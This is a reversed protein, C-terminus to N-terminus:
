HVTKKTNDLVGRLAATDLSHKNQSKASAFSQFTDFDLNCHHRPIRASKSNINNKAWSIRELLGPMVKCIVDRNNAGVFGKEAPKISSFYTQLIGDPHMNTATRGKAM